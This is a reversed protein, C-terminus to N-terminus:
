PALPAARAPEVACTERIRAAYVSKPHEGLFLTARRNAGIAGARCNALLEIARREELLISRPYRQELEGILALAFAANGARVAKEARRLLELEQNEEPARILRKSPSRDREPTARSRKSVAALPAEVATPQSESPIEHVLADVAPVAVAVPAPRPAPQVEAVRQGRTFYGSAFGAGLLAVGLFMGLKGTARVASWPGTSGTQLAAGLGISGGGLRERVRERLDAEPTWAQWARQLHRDVIDRDTDPDAV